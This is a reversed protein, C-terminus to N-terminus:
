KKGLEIIEQYDGQQNEKLQRRLAIMEDETDALRVSIKFYVSFLNSYVAMCYKYCMQMRRFISARVM